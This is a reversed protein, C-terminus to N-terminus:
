RIYIFQKITVCEKNTFRIYYIGSSLNYNKLNLSLNSTANHKMLNSIDEVIVGKSNLLQTQSNSVTEPSYNINIINSTPNPFVSIKNELTTTENIAITNTDIVVPVVDQYEITSSLFSSNIKLLPIGADVGVWHYETTSLPPLAMGMSMSYLYISDHKVIDTKIRLVDYTGMPLELTGWGDVYSDREILESFYLLTPIDIEYDTTSAYSNQYNLPFQYIVEPNSYSIPMPIQNITAGFGVKRFSSNDSAFFDYNDTITVGMSIQPINMSKIAVDAQDDDWPINFVLNYTIPTSLVDLFTDVRQSISELTSYDWYYNEGTLSEDGLFEVATSIRFTDNPSAMDNNSITIQGVLFAPLIFLILTIISKM